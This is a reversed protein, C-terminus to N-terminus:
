LRYTSTIIYTVRARFYNSVISPRSRYVWLFIRSSPSIGFGSPISPHPQFRTDGGWSFNQQQSRCFSCTLCPKRYKETFKTIFKIINSHITEGLYSFEISLKIVLTLVLYLIHQIANGVITGVLM